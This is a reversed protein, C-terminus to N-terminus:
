RRAAALGADVAALVTKVEAVNNPWHPAFRLRGDPITLAARAPDISRFLTVVDVGPPPRVALIASRAAPDPSRESVFGRALLEPELADGYRVVHGHIADIGLGLLVDVSAELAAYGVTSQSGGEVVSARRLLPRDHRLKGPGEFLFALANEHGLWGAVRPEFHSAREPAVYIFGAGEFGMM